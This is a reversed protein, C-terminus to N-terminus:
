NIKERFTVAWNYLPEGTYVSAATDSDRLNGRDGYGDAQNASGGAGNHYAYAVVANSAVPGTLTLTIEGVGSLSVSQIQNGADDTYSFGFHEAAPVRGTDFILQGVNGTFVISVADGYLNFEAPRLPEWAGTDRYARYAKSFYEGLERSALNTIHSHNEYELFYMPAVLLVEGPNDAHAKLQQLPTPFGDETIGGNFGYGGGSSTQSVLVPIDESQGTIAKWDANIDDRLAKLNAAYNLNNDLGDQEGHIVSLSRASLNDFHDTAAELQLLIKEYVGTAGGKKIGDYNYGGWAQGGFVVQNDEHVAIADATVQHMFSPAITIRGRDSLPVFVESLTQSAVGIPGGDLMFLNDPFAPTELSTMVAGVGGEALSQGTLAHFQTEPQVTDHPSVDTPPENSPSSSGGGGGCGVLAFCIGMMLARM